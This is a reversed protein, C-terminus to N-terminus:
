PKGHSKEAVPLEEMHDLWDMLISRILLLVQVLMMGAFAASGVCFLMAWWVPILGITMQSASAILSSTIALFLVQSLNRVPGYHSLQPNINRRDELRKKYVASDFVNEKFKVVIFVKLSLLFSGVTLLGTFLSARIKEGYFTVASSANPTLYIVAALVVMAVLISTVIMKKM